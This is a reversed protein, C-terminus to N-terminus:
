FIPLGTQIPMMSKRIQDEVALGSATFPSLVRGGGGAQEDCITAVRDITAKERRHWAKLLRRSSRLDKM